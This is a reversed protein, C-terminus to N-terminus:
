SLRVGKALQEETLVRVGNRLLLEAVVGNGPVLRGSFSGDYVMGCGCSPSRSKLVACSCRFLRALHLTEGAGAEFRATLDTGDRGLVRGNLLEATQRPTPLGGLQEPCVPILAHSERLRLADENEIGTGSYRCNIGLLCASVLINM